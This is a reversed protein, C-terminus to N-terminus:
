EPKPQNAAVADALQDTSSDLTAALDDIMRQMVVDLNTGFAAALFKLLSIFKDMSNGAFGFLFNCDAETLVLSRDPQTSVIIKLENM